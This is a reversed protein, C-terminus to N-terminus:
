ESFVFDIRQTARRAVAEGDVIRPKFKWRLIARRASRDFLRPPESDTVVPNEVTGDPLITFEVEVWGGIREILAERPWQPDTRVIPVVDGQSALDGPSWQGFLPVGGTSIPVAITPAGIEFINAPSRPSEAIIQLRPPPPPEESPEPEQPLRRNRRQVTEDKRVRIFDVLGGTRDGHAVDHGGSILTHMLLFLLTAVVVGAGTALVFRTPGNGM